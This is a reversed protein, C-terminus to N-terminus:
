RGQVQPWPLICSGSFGRQSSALLGGSPLLGGMASLLFSSVTAWGVAGTFTVFARPRRFTAPAQTTYSGSDDPVWLEM